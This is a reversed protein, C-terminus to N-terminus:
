RYCRATRSHTLSHTHTYIHTHPLSLSLSLAHAHARTRARTQTHARSKPASNNTVHHIVRLVCVRVREVVRMGGLADAVANEVIERVARVHTADFGHQSDHAYTQTLPRPILIHKTHTHTHTYTHIHTPTHIHTHTCARARAYKHTQLDIKLDPACHACM